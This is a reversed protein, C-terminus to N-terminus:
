ACFAAFRRSSATLTTTQMPASRLKPVDRLKAGGCPSKKQDPPSQRDIAEDFIDMSMQGARYPAAKYPRSLRTSLLFGDPDLVKQDDVKLIFSLAPM